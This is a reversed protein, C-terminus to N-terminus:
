MTHVLICHNNYLSNKPIKYLAYAKNYNFIMLLKKKIEQSKMRLVQKKTTDIIFNKVVKSKPKDATNKLILNFIKLSQKTILTGL